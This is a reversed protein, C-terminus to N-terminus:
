IQIIRVEKGKTHAYALTYFTGGRGRGDYVGIVCSLGPHKSRQDNICHAFLLDTGEAFGTLFVRYGDELAQVVEQELSRKVYDQKYAPIERHGTVCCAKEQM